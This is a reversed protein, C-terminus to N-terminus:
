DADQNKYNDIKRRIYEDFDEVIMWLTSLETPLCLLSKQPIKYFLKEAGPTTQLTSDLALDGASHVRQVIELSTEGPIDYKMSVLSIADNATGVMSKIQSTQEVELNEAVIRATDGLLKNYKAPMGLNVEYDKFIGENYIPYNVKINEGKASVIQNRLSETKDIIKGLPFDESLEKEIIFDELDLFIDGISSYVEYSGDVYEIVDRPLDRTKRPVPVIEGIAGGEIYSEITGRYTSEDFDGSAGAAEEADALMEEVRSIYTTTLSHGLTEGADQVGHIVQAVGLIEMGTEAGTVLDLMENNLESWSTLTTTIELTGQLIELPLGFIDAWFKEERYSRVETFARSVFERDLIIKDRVHEDLSDIANVLDEETLDTETEETQFYLTDSPESLGSENRAQINWRYNTDSKLVNEPLTYSEEYIEQPNHIINDGGYPYESIALAYSDAEEVEEWTLTPTKTDIIPGPESIDGPELLEPSNPKELEEGNSDPKPINNEQWQFYPYSEGEKIYWIIDFRWRSFTDKTIMESTNKARGGDSNEQNSTEVNWFSEEVNGEDEIGVLGGTHENGWVMGTSYTNKIDGSNEGVLGGVFYFSRVNGSAYSNIVNGENYGILGGAYDGYGNVDGHAFSQILETNSGTSQGVLGGVYNDGSIDSQSFIKEVKMEGSSRVESSGIFGGVYDNGMVQEAKSNSNIIKLEDNYGTYSSGILGGVMDEGKIDGHSVADRILRDSLTRNRGILGGVHSGGEVKKNIVECDIIDSNNNYGTLGGVYDGDTGTIIEDVEVKCDSLDGENRGVLGGLYDTHGHSIIEVTISADKIDAESEGVLGGLYNGYGEIVGEVEVEAIDTPGTSQGVLGGVYNDGVIKIDILNLNNIEAGKLEYFLGINDQDPRNIYLNKISYNQGDFYGQFSNSNDGIPQWGEGDNYSSEQTISADINDGLKYYADLSYEDSQGLKELGAFTYIIFPNNKTGEGVIDDEIEVFIAKINLDKYIEITYPNYKGDIDGEWSHFRWGEHSVATLKVETGENYEFGEPEVEVFGEGEKNVTLNFREKEGSFDATLEIDEAPMDFTIPNDESEIYGTWEAFEYGDDPIATLEVEEGEEYKGYGEVTGNEYNVLVSYTDEGHVTVISEVELDTAPDTQEVGEPLDFTGTATYNDAVESNYDEISWDLSVTYEKGETDTITVEDALKNIADAEATGYGVSIDEVDDNTDIDAIKPVREAFEVEFKAENNDKDVELAENEVTYEGDELNDDIVLIIETTGSLGTINGTLANNEYSFQDIGSEGDALVSFIESHDENAVGEIIVEANYTESDTDGLEGNDCGAFSLGLLLIFSLLLVLKSQNKIATLM